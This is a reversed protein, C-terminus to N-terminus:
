IGHVPPKFLLIYKRVPRSALFDLILTGALGAEPFLERGLKYIAVKKSYIRVPCLFSQHRKVLRM